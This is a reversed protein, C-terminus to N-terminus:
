DGTDLKDMLTAWAREVADMLDDLRYPKKVTAVTYKALLDSLEESPQDTRATVFVIATRARVEDLKALERLVDIGDRRPMMRDLLVVRPVPQSMLLALTENGDVAEEVLFDTEEFLFQLSERIGEDDEALCVRRQKNSTATQKVTEANVPNSM